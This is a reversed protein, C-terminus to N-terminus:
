QGFAPLRPRDVSQTRQELVPRGAIAPGEPMILQLARQFRDVRHALGPQERRLRLGRDEGILPPPLAFGQRLPTASDLPPCGESASRAGGGRAPSSFCPVMMHVQAGDLEDVGRDTQFVAADRPECASHLPEGGILDAFAGIAADYGDCPERLFQAAGGAGLREVGGEGGGAAGPDHPRARQAEVLRLDSRDQVDRRVAEGIAALMDAIRGGGGIAAHCHRRQARGDDVQAALGGTGTGGGDPFAVLDGAGGGDDLPQCAAARQHRDVRPFSGHHFGREGGARADDVIDGRQQPVVARQLHHGLRGAGDDQHVRGIGFLAPM